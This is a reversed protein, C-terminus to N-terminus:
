ATLDLELLCGSVDPNRPLGGQATTVFAKGPAHFVLATPRATPVRLVEEVSGAQGLRLICGGDWMASWIQGNADVALGDPLGLDTAFEALIRGEGLSGSARTYPYAIIQRRRTDTLYMTQADLSWGIGNCAGFGSRVLVLPTNERYRYLRGDHLTHPAGITGIWTWGNHDRAADNFRSGAPLDNVQAIPNLCGSQIDLVHLGQPTIAIIRGQSPLLRTITIDVAVSLCKRSGPQYSHVRRGIIDTWLLLEEEEWWTPAEGLAAPGGDPVITQVLVAEKVITV